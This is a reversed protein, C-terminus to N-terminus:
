IHYIISPLKENKRLTMIECGYNTVLITHEYQASLSHDKTKVTWNDEMMSVHHSGANVMPEITFILGPYLKIGFDYSDYHLIQPYEHFMKGIGHGCYERVVSFNKSEVFEQIVKGITRLRVGPKIISIALYLSEQTIKCLRKGIINPQGVFFMKSTDGYFGNKFVTVDINLIDGYKLKKKNNPIGHCVIENVSICVSKPFGNYGLPAPIAKQKKTIYKHCIINLEETSIGPKIFNKIMDLVEAALYCSLRINNVEDLTKISIIM